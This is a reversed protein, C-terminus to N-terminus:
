LGLRKLKEYLTRRPIGLIEAARNKQGDSLELARRLAWEELEDLRLTDAGGIAKRGEKLHAFFDPSLSGSGLALARRIENELQRINGPWPCSQLYSMTEPTIKVGNNNPYVSMFHKVLLAIDDRRETLRPLDVVVVAIRYFLDERFIGEAVMERVDRNAASIVRVDVTIPKESGVPFVEGRELVRLLSKQMEPSMSVVEDLFLTGKDALEFLGRRDSVAGTFAGKRFGFLEASLLSEPMAGCNVALFPGTCRASYAHIARATLEKGTGSEGNILVPLDTKELTKLLSIVRRHPVSEGVMGGYTENVRMQRSQASLAEKTRDLEEQKQHLTTTLIGNLREIEEANREITAFMASKSIAAVAIESLANLVRLEMTGFKRGQRSHVYIVGLLEEDHKLPFCAITRLSHEFASHRDTIVAENDDLILRRGSQKVTEIVSQSFGDKEIDLTNGHLDRAICFQKDQMNFVSLFGKEAEVVSITSDVLYAALQAFDGIENLGKVADLLTYLLKIERKLEGDTSRQKEYNEVLKRVDDSSLPQSHPLDNMENRGNNM